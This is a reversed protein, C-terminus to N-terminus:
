RAARAHSRASAAAARATSSSGVLGRVPEEEGARPDAAAAEGLREGREVRASPRATRIWRAM